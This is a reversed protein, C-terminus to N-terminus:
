FRIFVPGVLGKFDQFKRFVKEYVEYLGKKIPVPSAEPTPQSAM